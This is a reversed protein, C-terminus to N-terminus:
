GGWVCERVTKRDGRWVREKQRGIGGWVCERERHRGIGWCM